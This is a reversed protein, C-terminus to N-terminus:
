FPVDGDGLVEEYESLISNSQQTQSQAQHTVPASGSGQIAIFDCVLNKYQKGEYENVQIRGICLVKDGKRIASAVIAEDGWAQCNTWIAEPKDQGEAQKEGVKVGWTTLNKGNQTQKFEADNPVFGSVM